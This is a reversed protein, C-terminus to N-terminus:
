LLGCLCTSEFCVELRDPCRLAHLDSGHGCDPCVDWEVFPTRVDFFTVGGADEIIWAQRDNSLYRATTSRRREASGSM